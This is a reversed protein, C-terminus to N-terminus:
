PGCGDFVSMPYAYVKRGDRYPKPDDDEWESLTWLLDTTPNYTLDEMGMLADIEFSRSCDLDVPLVQVAPCRDRNSTYFTAGSYELVGQMKLPRDESGSIRHVEVTDTDLFGDEQINWTSFSSIRDGSTWQGTLMRRGGAGPTHDLSVFSTDYHNCAMESHPSGDIKSMDYDALQPIVYGYNHARAVDGSLGIESAAGSDVRMIDRVDFVLFGGSAVYIFNDVWAIGGAHVAADGKRNILSVFDGGDANAKVLLVHRYLNESLNVFTLRTGKIIGESYCGGAEPNGHYWSVVVWDSAREAGIDAAYPTTVGQPFWCDANGDGEDWKFGTSARAPLESASASRLSRNLDLEYWPVNEYGAALLHGKLSDRRSSFDEFYEGAGCGTEELHFTEEFRLSQRCEADVDGKDPCGLSFFAFIFGARLFICRRLATM